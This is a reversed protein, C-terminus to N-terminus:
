PLAAGSRGKVTAVDTSNITGNTNVDARFTSATVTGASAAAKTQAVDSATVTGNGGTDGSLLGMPVIVSGLNTGDSVNQLTVGLRQADTVGTLNVTVVAGSVTFTASGTGSTVAVSGVTVPAAFTIVMQHVGAAGTRDEIGVNGTLPVLPLPVDFDGVGTHTKRSVASVPVPANGGCVGAAITVSDIRSGPNTPAVSSDSGQRWKLQINQGAAAAPLNVVTTIYTPAAATGGSLGTWAARNPLPNGFTTPLTSNYGGSVFSGGATIIDQFAGGAVSPIAIELVLGDFNSETNFLNRFTLKAGGNIPISPTTIESLGVTTAESLFVDNPATDASITSTVPLTGSGSSTPTWGAPLAPAVVSDFNQAFSTAVSGTVFTYTLTGYNIAGDTVALSATVTAGCALAPNVTFTFNRYVVGGPACVM